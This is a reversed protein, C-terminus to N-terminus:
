RAGGAKTQAACRPVFCDGLTGTSRDLHRHIGWVDHTFDFDPFGLLQDLDLPTGNAHCAALDMALGDPLTQGLREAIRAARMIVTTIKQAEAKTTRFSVRSRDDKQRSM